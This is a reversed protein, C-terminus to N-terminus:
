EGANYAKALHFSIGGVVSGCVERDMQGYLVWDDACQTALAKSMRPVDLPKNHAAINSVAAILPGRLEGGTEPYAERVATLARVVVDPGHQGILKEIGKVAQTRGAKAAAAPGSSVLEIKATECVKLVVIAVPDGATARARLMSVPHVARRDSNIAIFAEAELPVSDADMIYAPVKPIDGRLKIAAVRHQGDVAVFRGNDRRVLSPPQFKAWSFGAAIKRILNIQKRGTMDRQYAPEVDILNIDVWELTPLPGLAKIELGVATPLIINSDTVTNM